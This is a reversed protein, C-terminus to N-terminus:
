AKAPGLVGLRAPRRAPAGVRHRRDALSVLGGGVMLLCGAWIWAILPNVYLRTAWAGPGAPDGLVAYLDRM